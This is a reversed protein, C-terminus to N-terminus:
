LDRKGCFNCRDMNIFGPAVSEDFSQQPYLKADKINLSPAGWGGASLTIASIKLRKLLNSRTVHM